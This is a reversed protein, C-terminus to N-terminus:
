GAGAKAGVLDKRREARPAHSLNVARPVSPQRALHGDLHQGRVPGRRGLGALAELPLRPRDRLQRVRVDADQVVHPAFAVGLVEDHLEDVALRQRVPEPLPPQRELLRQAEAGLDRGREVRGVAFPDDM